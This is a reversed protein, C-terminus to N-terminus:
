KLIKRKNYIVPYPDGYSKLDTKVLEGLGNEKIKDTAFCIISETWAETDFFDDFEYHGGECLAILFDLKNDAAKRIALETADCPMFGIIMDAGTVDTNLEFIEKKLALRDTSKQSKSLKPDYVTVSGTEQMSSIKKAVSPIVGGGVEIINRNIDFNDALLSVFAEYANNDEDLIGLEDYIQRMVDPLNLTHELMDANSILYRVELDSYDGLHEKVYDRVKQYKPNEWKKNLHRIDVYRRDQQM